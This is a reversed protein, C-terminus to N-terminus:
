GRYARGRPLVRLVRMVGAVHDLEFRVRWDGVRLRLETTGRLRKVDGHESRAYEDIAKIVRQAAPADIRRVDRRAPAAVQDTWTV